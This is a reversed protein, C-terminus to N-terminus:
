ALLVVLLRPLLVLAGEIGADGALERQIVDVQIVGFLEVLALVGRLLRHAPGDGLGVSLLVRGDDALLLDLRNESGDLLLLIVVAALRRDDELAVRGGGM